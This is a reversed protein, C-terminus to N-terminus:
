ARGRELTLTISDFPIPNDWNGNQVVFWDRNKQYVTYPLDLQRAAQNMRTKTTASYWGGTNLIIQTPTVTVVDTGQYTVTTVDGQKRVSTAHTGIKNMRPM